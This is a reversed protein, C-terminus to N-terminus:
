WQPVIIPRRSTRAPRHAEMLQTRHDPSWTYGAAVTQEIAGRLGEGRSQELAKGPQTLVGLHLDLRALICSSEIEGHRSRGSVVPDSDQQPHFVSCGTEHEASPVRMRIAPQIIGSELLRTPHFAQNTQQLADQFITEQKTFVNASWLRVERSQEIGRVLCSQQVLQGRGVTGAAHTQERPRPSQIALEAGLIEATIALPTGLKRSATCNQM